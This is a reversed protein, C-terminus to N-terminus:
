SWSFLACGDCPSRGLGDLISCIRRKFKRARFTSEDATTTGGSNAAHRDSGSGLLSYTSPDATGAAFDEDDRRQGAASGRALSGNGNVSEAGLVIAQSDQVGFASTRVAEVLIRVSESPRQLMLRAKTPLVPWNGELTAAFQVQSLSDLHVGREPATMEAPLGSKPMRAVLDIYRVGAALRLATQLPPRLTVRNDRSGSRLRKVACRAQLLEPYIPNQDGADLSPHAPVRRPACKRPRGSGSNTQRQRAGCSGCM